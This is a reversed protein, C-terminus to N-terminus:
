HNRWGQRESSKETASSGDRSCQAHVAGVTGHLHRANFEKEFISLNISIPKVRSNEGYEIVTKSNFSFKSM